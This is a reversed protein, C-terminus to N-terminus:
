LEEELEKLSEIIRDAKSFDQGHTNPSKLALCKMGAAKAAEIGAQADEVVLCEGPKMGLKWAAKLFIEPHPKGHNIDDASVITNILSLLGTETLSARIKTLSGSSAIVFPTGRERLRKLIERAGPLPRVRGKILGSYIRDKEGALEEPKLDLNRAKIADRFIDLDRRGFAKKREEPSLEIGFEKLTKRSARGSFAETDALVGDLDFIVAKIM